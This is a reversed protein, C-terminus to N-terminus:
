YVGHKANLYNVIQTLQGDTLANNRFMIVEAIKGGFNTGGIRHTGAPSQNASYRIAVVYRTGASLGAAHSTNNASFASGNLSYAALATGGFDLGGAATIVLRANGATTTIYIDQNTMAAAETEVVAIITRVTTIATMTFLDNSGDFNFYATNNTGFGSSMLEPRAAGAATLNFGTGAKDTVADVCDPIGCASITMSTPDSADFWASMGPYSIVVRTLNPLTGLGPAADNSNVDRITGGNMDINGGNTIGIGDLDADAANITHRFTLQTTGTGSLYTAYRTTGGVNLVIQPTGTVNVVQDFNVLFNFSIDSTDYISNSPPTVSTVKPVNADVNVAALNIAPLTTSAAVGSLSAISGGNNDVSAGAAIGNGDEDPDAPTYRFVLNATGSGSQYTAYRTSAGVTLAIRPSGTVNVAQSYNLTFDMNQNARFTGNAPPTVSSITPQSANVLIGSTNVVPLPTLIAVNGLGGAADTINGAGTKTVAVIQIGDVDLDAVAVTHRFTINATNSGTNYNAQVLTAGIMLDLKVNASSNIIVSENFHVIFNLNQGTTYTGAAPVTIGTILPTIGNIRITGTAPNTFSLNADLGAANRIAGGNLNIPTTIVIGNTDNTGENVTYSFVVNATGSGSVYSAYVPGGTDLALLFQPTGTITVPENFVATFSITQGVYFTTNATIGTNFSIVRPRSDVVLVNALSPMTFSNITNTAGNRIWSGGSFTFVSASTIGNNDVEGAQIVYRFTLQSTGAGSVYAAVRATAGITLAVSPITNVSVNMNFNFVFDLADGVTYSGNAPPTVSVVYPVAANVNVLGTGPAAFTVDANLGIADRLTGGNLDIDDQIVIGNTDNDGTQVTYRFVLTTTGSGSVYDAYRPSGEFDLTLRPVGTVITAESMTVTFTLPMGLYYTANSPPTVTTVTPEQTDVKIKSTSPVTISPNCDDLGNTGTFKLTGGNLDITSAVAIGDDDNDGAQITYRFTLVKTGTGSVYIANVTSGGIDLELQPVGTVTVDYPHTLKFELINGAIRTGAAPVTVTFRNTTRVNGSVLGSEEKSSFECASLLILVFIQLARLM